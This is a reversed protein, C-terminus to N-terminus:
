STFNDGISYNILIILRNIDPQVLELEICHIMAKSHICQKM